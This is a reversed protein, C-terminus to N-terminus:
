IKFRRTKQKPSAYSKGTKKKSFFGFKWTRSHASITRTL